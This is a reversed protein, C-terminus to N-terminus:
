KNPFLERLHIFRIQKYDAVRKSKRCFEPAFQALSKDMGARMLM